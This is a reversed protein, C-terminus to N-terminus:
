AAARRVGAVADVVAAIRLAAQITAAPVRHRRLEKEHSDLCAGCGQVASVALCWLEFDVKDVGPNAILTMKLRSPMAKYDKNALLSLSRYYVTNMGMIAAAGKAADAAERTLGEALAATEVAEILGREGAAHAAALFAGWKQQVTLAEEGALCCLNHVLDRAYPPLAQALVELSM